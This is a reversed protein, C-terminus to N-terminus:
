FDFENKWIKKDDDKNKADVIKGSEDSLYDFSFLTITLSSKKLKM